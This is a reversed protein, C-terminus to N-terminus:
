FIIKKGTSAVIASSERLASALAAGPKERRAKRTSHPSPRHKHRPLTSSSSSAHGEKQTEESASAPSEVGADAAAATGTGSKAAKDAIREAKPPRRSSTRGSGKAKTAGPEENSGGLSTHGLGGRRVADPSAYEVVLARGDLSHNRPNTLAMTAYEARTFDVFAWSNSGCATYTLSSACPQFSRSVRQM